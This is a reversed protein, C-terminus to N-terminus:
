KQESIYEEYFEILRDRCKRYASIGDYYPDTIGLVTIKEELNKDPYCSCLTIKQRNTMVHVADFSDLDYETISTPVYETKIGIEELVAAVNDDVHNGIAAIGASKFCYPAHKKEAISNAIEMAMPSRTKNSTCVILVNKM